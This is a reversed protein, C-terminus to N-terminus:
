SRSPLNSFAFRPASVVAGRRYGAVILKEALWRPACFVCLTWALVAIRKTMPMSKCSLLAAATSLFTHWREKRTPEDLGHCLKQYISLQQLHAFSSTLTGIRYELGFRRANAALLHDTQRERELLIKLDTLNVTIGRVVSSMNSGHVRYGGLPRDIAATEGALAALNFLYVDPGRKWASEPVPMVTDLFKRSFVNGSTPMSEVIGTALASKRLDGSPLPRQFFTQGIRGGESDIFELNFHLKALGRRWRATVESLCEPWLVDDSDLFLILEGTSRAFGANFAAAQGGNRQFVPLLRSGYREIVSRSDDTSGDDVVILEVHPYDQAIVSDITQGLFRAYNYNDVIVSVKPSM